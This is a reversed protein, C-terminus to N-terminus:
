HISINDRLSATNKVSARVDDHLAESGAIGIKLSPFTIPHEKVYNAM